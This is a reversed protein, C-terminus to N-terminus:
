CCLINEEWNLVTAREHKIVMYNELYTVQPLLARRWSSCSIGAMQDQRQLEPTLAGELLQQKAQTKELLQHEFRLIIFIEGDEMM